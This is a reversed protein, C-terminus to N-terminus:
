QQAEESPIATAFYIIDSVLRESGFDIYNYPEHKYVLEGTQGGDLGYATDIGKEHMHEAFETVTWRAAKEPSHNLNMYFYHLKDVVGIGARSYGTTPEGAAYWTCPQVEGNEVLIPGFAISFLIDNDVIFQRLEEETITDGRHMFIFDGGATVFCNDICNYLSYMGTYNSDSYRYLERQYVVIGFDRFQYFDANMAVVANAQKSLSSAYYQNPSGYTDDAIKRRFQSADAIKVECCSVTNGDILEKWCIALITEDCYYKIESDHYFNINPNFMVEQGDLLGSARAKEVVQMVEAANEISATGYCAENPVPGANDSEQLTYIKKIYTLEGLADSALNNMYGDLKDPLSIKTGSATAAASSANPHVNFGVWALVFISIVMFVTGLVGGGVRQAATLKKREKPEKKPKEPVPEEKPKETLKRRPKEKATPAPKEYVPETRKATEKKVERRQVPEEAKASHEMLPIGRKILKSGTSNAGTEPAATRERRVPRKETTAEPKEVSVASKKEAANIKEAASTKEEARDREAAAPAQKEEMPAPAAQFKATDAIIEDIGYPAAPKKDEVPEEQVGELSKSYNSFESLISDLDDSFNYDNSM